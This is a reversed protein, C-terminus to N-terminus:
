PNTEWQALGIVRDYGDWDDYYVVLTYLNNTQFHSGELDALSGPDGPLANADRAVLM